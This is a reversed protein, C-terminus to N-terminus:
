LIKKICYGPSYEICFVRGSSLTTLYEDIVVTMLYDGRQEITSESQTILDSDSFEVLYIAPEPYRM